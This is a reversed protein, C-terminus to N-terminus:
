HGRSADELLNERCSPTTVSNDSSASGNGDITGNGTIAIDHVGTGSLASFIYRIICILNSPKQKGATIIQINEEGIGLWKGIEGSWTHRLSSPCIVLLPWESSFYMAVALAQITKGLGM